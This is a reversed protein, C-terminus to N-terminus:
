TDGGNSLRDILRREPAHQSDSVWRRAPWAVGCIVDQHRLRLHTSENQYWGFISRRCLDSTPTSARTLSNMRM